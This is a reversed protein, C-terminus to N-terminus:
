FLLCQFTFHTIEAINKRLKTQHQYLSLFVRKVKLIVDLYLYFNIHRVRLRAFTHSSAHNISVTSIVYLHIVSM